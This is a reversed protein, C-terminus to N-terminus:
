TPNSTRYSQLLDQLVKLFDAVECYKISFIASYKQAIPFIDIETEMMTAIVGDDYLRYVLDKLFNDENFAHFDNLFYLFRKEKILDKGYTKIVYNFSISFRDYNKITRRKRKKKKKYKHYNQQNTQTSGVNSNLSPTVSTTNQTNGPSLQIQTNNLKLQSLNDEKLVHAIRRIVWVVFIFLFFIWLGFKISLWGLLVFFGIFLFTVLFVTFKDM